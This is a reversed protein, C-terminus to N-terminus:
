ISLSIQKIDQFTILNKTQKFFLRFVTYIAAGGFVDLINSYKSLFFSLKNMKLNKDKGHV